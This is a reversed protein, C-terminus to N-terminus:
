FMFTSNGIIEKDLEAVSRMSAVVKLPKLDNRSTYLKISIEWDEVAKKFDPADPSFFMHPISHRNENIMPPKPQSDTDASFSFLCFCDVAEYPALLIPCPTNRLPSMSADGDYRWIIRDGRVPFWYNQDDDSFGINNVAISATSKNSLTMRLIINTSNPVVRHAYAVVNDIKLRTRQKIITYVIHGASLLFGAAGAIHALSELTIM